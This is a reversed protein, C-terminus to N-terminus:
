ECRDALGLVALLNIRKAPEAEILLGKVLVRHGASLEGTANVQEPTTFQARDGSKLLSDADLFDAVGILEYEGTGLATEKAEAVQDVNFVGARSVEPDVARVLWWGTAGDDRQEACGLTQVIEVQPKTKAAAEGQALAATPWAAATSAAAAVVLALAVRNITM